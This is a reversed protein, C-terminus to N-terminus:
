NKKRRLLNKRLADSLKKKKQQKEKRKNESDKPAEKKVESM